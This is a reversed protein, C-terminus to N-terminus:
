GEYALEGKRFVKRVRRVSSIDNLPDGDVFIVDALYRLQLAGANVGLVKARNGRRCSLQM